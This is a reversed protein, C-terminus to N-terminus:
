YGGTVTEGPLPLRWRVNETKSWKTAIGTETCIGDRTPGRWQPWNDAWLSSAVLTMTLCAM